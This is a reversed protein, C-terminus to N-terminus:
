RTTEEVPARLVQGPRLLDPDDGVVHRNAAYWAPWTAAVEADDAGAPLSRAAIGWLTDGRVVVVEGAGVQPRPAPVVLAEAATTAEEKPRVPATPRWTVDPAAGVADPARAGDTAASDVPVTLATGSTVDLVVGSAAPAALAPAAAALPGVGLAAVLAGRLVAPLLRGGARHLVGAARSAQPATRAAVVLLGGLAWAGALLGGAGAALGAVADDVQGAPGLASALSSSAVHLLAAALAALGLAAVLM